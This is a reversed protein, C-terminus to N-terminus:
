RVARRALLQARRPEFARHVKPVFSLAAPTLAQAAAQFAPARLEIGTSLSGRGANSRFCHERCSEQKKNQIPIPQLRKKLESSAM